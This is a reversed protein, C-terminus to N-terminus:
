MREPAAVGLLKLGNAICTRACWVLALKAETAVPDDGLIREDHYFVSFAQAIDVLHRTLLSPEYREGAERIQVPLGYLLKILAAAADGTLAGFDIEKRAPDLAAGDTGAELAKRLVSAARAHSYQVYPGTEGDFNLAKEWDFVYDKIRNNHLEQFVVAGIGIQAAAEETGDTLVGKEEIIIKTKEIANRLVDELFVVNGTRTSMAGDKLRILGFPVHICDQAWDYGMLEVIKMWQRFHLEQQNAVVYINKYFHYHEKRYIAAAVDRTIYLTSGDSKRILAKGLGYADLDVLQAGQSEELLGKEELEDTVREMKDSYFSEGNYSDFKIGLMEYVLTFEKLSEARFWEWLAHEEPEGRELAAFAARAEAELSPDHQAQTHFDVYYKLLTEIPAREVEERSGFRRYAVILKGFQTGYDGLHNLREVKYGMFALINAIAAGIVTSRIHGIHFPKAINPSSYEVLVTRGGGLDSGGFREREEYVSRILAEALAARDIKFNVYPGAAEVSEAAEAEGSLTEALDAAIAQPAKRLTKALRFCPFAYDGLAPDAPIEVIDSIDAETLGAERIQPLAAIKVITEQKFDRM